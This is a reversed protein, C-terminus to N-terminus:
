NPLQLIYRLIPIMRANSLSLLLKTNTGVFLIDMFSEHVVGVKILFGVEAHRIFAMSWSGYSVHFVSSQMTKKALLIPFLLCRGLTVCFIWIGSYIITKGYM